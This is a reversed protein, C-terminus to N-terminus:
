LKVQVLHLFENETGMLFLSLYTVTSLYASHTKNETFVAKYALPNDGQVIPKWSCYLVSTVGFRVTMNIGQIIKSHVLYQRLLALLCYYSGRAVCQKRFATCAIDLLDSPFRVFYSFM